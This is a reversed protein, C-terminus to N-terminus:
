NVNDIVIYIVNTDINYIYHLCNEKNYVYFHLIESGPCSFLALISVFIQKATFKWQM